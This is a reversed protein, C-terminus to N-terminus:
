ADNAVNQLRAAVTPRQVKSRVQLRSRLCQANARQLERLVGACFSGVSLAVGSTLAPKIMDFIGKAGLSLESNKVSRLWCGVGGRAIPAVVAQDNAM